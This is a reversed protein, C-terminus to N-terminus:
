RAATTAAGMPTPTPTATRTVTPTPTPTPTVTPTATPTRTATPTPTRSGMARTAAEASGTDEYIPGQIKSGGCAVVLLLAPLVIRAM